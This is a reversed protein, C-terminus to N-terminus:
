LVIMLNKIVALVVARILSGNASLFIRIRCRLEQGSLYSPLIWHPRVLEPLRALYLEFEGSNADSTNGTLAVGERLKNGAMVLEQLRKQEAKSLGQPTGPAKAKTDVKTDKKAVQKLMDMVNAKPKAQKEIELKSKDEIVQPPPATPVPKPEERQTIAEEAKPAPPPLEMNRLEKITHKPMAVVDVRVSAEILKLNSEKLDNNSSRLLADGFFILVIFVAHIVLSKYFGKKIKEQEESPDYNHISFSAM